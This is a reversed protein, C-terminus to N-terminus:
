FAIEFAHYDAYKNVYFLHFMDYPQHPKVDRSNINHTAYVLILHAACYITDIHIVTINQLNCTHYGPCVIWMGTAAHPGEGVCDFWHIVACPY